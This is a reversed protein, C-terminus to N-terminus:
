LKRLVVVLTIPRIDEKAVEEDVLRGYSEFLKDLIEEGFHQSLMSEQIARVTKAVTKGYGIANDGTQRDVELMELRDLEFSGEKIVEGEIEAATPAYFHVDYSDLKEEETEGPAVLDAVTRSLLEWFFSNGRDIHGPGERGLLILVMRGGSVLEKSRCQLFLSFDEKFQDYYAKSVVEPSSSCIYICGKNMSKGQEDYIAPPVKSLWHLSYSSYVFHLTNDPFLRGYFSGPYAAIFVPPSGGNRDRKLERHFEPLAKFISNFDNRPLDNLFVCFEPSPQSSTTDRHVAEVAEIIDRITSLTNPGSSCGLDALGLSKPSTAKYLEQVTELTIHKAEDSAKKQLSSNKAYSTKGTGGTMHFEIELGKKKNNEM